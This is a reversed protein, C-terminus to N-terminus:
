RFQFSTKSYGAEVFLHQLFTAANAEATKLVGLSDALRLLQPEAQAVLQEREAASFGSRFTGIDEFAVQIKGPPINLSFVQAHPLTIALSDKYASFNDAKINQLNVGAKLYAECNIIIKRDGIKYWTKDDSARIVKGLTYEATVLQGTEKLSLITQSLDPQKKSSCTTFLLSAALCYKICRQPFDLAKM